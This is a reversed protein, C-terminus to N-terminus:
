DEAEPKLKGTAEQYARDVAPYLFTSRFGLKRQYDDGALKKDFEELKVLKRTEELSLKRSVAEKVQSTLAQFMEILTKLYGPDRLVPGHGPVYAAANMGVMKELVAPWEGMYSGFAFPTPYVVTDGTVLVKVDPVWTVADGGTNARGLWMVKVERKGLNVILEKEFGLTPPANVTHALEPEIHELTDITRTLFRRMDGTLVRGDPLSGAALMERLRVM